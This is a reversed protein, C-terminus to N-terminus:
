REETKNLHALAENETELLRVAYPYFLVGEESLIVDKTSRVLAPSGIGIGTAQHSHQDDATLCISKQLLLFSKCNVVNIFSRIYDLRMIKKKRKEGHRELFTKLNM